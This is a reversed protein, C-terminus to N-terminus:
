TSGHPLLASLLTLTLCWPPNHNVKADLTQSPQLSIFVALPNKLSFHLTSTSLPLESAQVPGATGNYGVIAPNFVEDHTQLVERFQNCITDPLINDPDVKVADSFFGPQPSISGCPPSTIPTTWWTVHSDCSHHPLSPLSTQSTPCDKAWCHRQSFPVRSAVAEVIKPSPGFNHFKPANTQM